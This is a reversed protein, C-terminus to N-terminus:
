RRLELVVQDGDQAFVVRDALIQVLEFGNLEDGLELTHSEGQGALLAWQAEGTEVLGILEYGAFPDREPEVIRDPRDRHELRGALNAVWDGAGPSLIEAGTMEVSPLTEQSGRPWVAALVLGSMALALTLFLLDSRRIM